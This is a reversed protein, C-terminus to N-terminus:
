SHHLALVDEVEGRVPAVRQATVKEVDLLTAIQALLAPAPSAEVHEPLEAFLRHDHECRRRRLMGDGHKGVHVAAIAGLKVALHRVVDARFRPESRRRDLLRCETAWRRCSPTPTTSRRDAGPSPPHWTRRGTGSRVQSLGTLACYAAPCLIPTLPVGGDARTRHAAQLSREAPRARATGPRLRPRSSFPAASDGTRARKM